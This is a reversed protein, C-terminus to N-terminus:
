RCADPSECVAAAGSIGAQVKSVVGGRMHVDVVEDQRHLGAVHEQQGGVAHMVVQIRAEGSGGHRAMVIVQVPAARAIM